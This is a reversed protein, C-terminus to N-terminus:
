SKTYFYKTDGDQITLESGSLTYVTQTTNVSITIKDGDQTWTMDQAEASNVKITGTGDDNFKLENEFPAEFDGKNTDDANVTTEGNTVRSLTWTGTLSSEGCGSLIGLCLGVLILVALAPKWITHIRKLNEM